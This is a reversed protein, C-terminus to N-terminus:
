ATYRVVPGKGYLVPKPDVFLRDHRFLLTM